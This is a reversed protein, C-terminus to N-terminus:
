ESQPLVRPHTPLASIGQSCTGRKQPSSETRLPAIDRTHVNVKVPDLHGVQRQYEQREKEFKAELSRTYEDRRRTEDRSRQEALEISRRMKEQERRLQEQQQRLEARM